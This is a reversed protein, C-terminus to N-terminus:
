VLPHLKVYSDQTRVVSTQWADRKGPEATRCRESGGMAMHVMLSGAFRLTDDRNNLVLLGVLVKLVVM